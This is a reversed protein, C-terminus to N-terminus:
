LYPDAYWVGGICWEQYTVNGKVDFQICDETFDYNGPNLGKIGEFYGSGGGTTVADSAGGTVTGLQANTLTEFKSSNLNELQM